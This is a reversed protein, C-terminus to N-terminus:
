NVTTMSAARYGALVGCGSWPSQAASKAAAQDPHRTMGQEFGRMTCPLSHSFGSMLPLHSSGLARVAQVDSNSQNQDLNQVVLNLMRDTHTIAM